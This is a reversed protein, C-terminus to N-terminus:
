LTCAEISILLYTGVFQLLGVGPFMALTLDMRAHKGAGSTLAISSAAVTVIIVALATRLDGAGEVTNAFLSMIIQFMVAGGFGSIGTAFGGLFAAATSLLVLAASPM